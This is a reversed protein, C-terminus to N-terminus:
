VHSPPSIATPRAAARRASYDEALRRGLAIGPREIGRYAVWALTPLMVVLVAWRLAGHAGGAFALGLAMIHTLYVGYSYTAITKGVRALAACNIQRSAPIAIGLALCVCWFIPTEPWGAAVLTPVTCVAAMVVGFLLEPGFRATRHRLVYALAGPLFCPVFRLLHFGVGAVTLGVAVLLACTCLLMIPLVGYRTFAFLLPLVLYMQVEYPLSWLPQPVSAHGTINQVLLLNSATQAINLPAKGFLGPLATLLVVACALPYIRFARRLYFAAASEGSRELSMLLVLTTHVFFIAVGLRGLTELSYVGELSWGIFYRLHSVLVFGVAMSRLLDLNPSDKVPRNLTM